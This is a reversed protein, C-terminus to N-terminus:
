DRPSSMATKLLGVILPHPSDATSSLQPQFLTAIFFRNGSHEVIRAEGPDTRGSIRLGHNRLTTEFEPNLEYTCTFMESVESVAYCRAALSDPSITIRMKGSLAPGLAGEIACAAATILPTRM